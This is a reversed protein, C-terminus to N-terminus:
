KANFGGEWWVGGRGWQRRSWGNELQIISWALSVLITFQFFLHQPCFKGIMTMSWYSFFARNTNFFLFIIWSKPSLPPFAITRQIPQHLTALRMSRAGQGDEDSLCLFYNNRRHGFFLILGFLEKFTVGWRLVGGRKRDVWLSRWLVCYTTESSFRSFQSRVLSPRMQRRCILNGIIIQPKEATTLVFIRRIAPWM